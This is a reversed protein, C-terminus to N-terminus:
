WKSVLFAEARDYVFGLPDALFDSLNQRFTGWLNYYYSLPGQDFTVLRGWTAGLAGLIVGSPNQKFESIWIGVNDYWGSLLSGTYAIWYWLDGVLSVTADYRARAWDKVSNKIGQWLDEWSSYGGRVSEPLKWFLTDLGQALTSTWGPVWSGVRNRIADLWQELTYYGHKPKGTWGAVWWLADNVATKKLDDAWFAWTGEVAFDYYYLWLDTPRDDSDLTQTWVWSAFWVLFWAPAKRSEREPKVLPLFLLARQWKGHWWLRLIDVLSYSM